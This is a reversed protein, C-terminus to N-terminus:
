DGSSQSLRPHVIVPFTREFEPRNHPKGRVVLKWHVANHASQFSHMAEGPVDLACRREFPQAPGEQAQREILLPACHVREVETRIDTGQSFTAEEECVLLLELSDFPAQGAQSFVVEYHGGPHLPLDSIELSTPGVGAHDFLRRVFYFGAWVGICLMAAALATLLWDGDQRLHSELALVAVVATASNWVLCFAAAAALRWIPSAAVPLRFELVTGPSDTLERGDPVAPFQPADAAGDGILDRGAGRILASRREASAGLQLLSFIFGGGGILVFSALVLLVLWLSWGALRPGATFQATLLAALAVAGLLFLVAFFLAEGLSGAVRSGTRREGRKKVWFRFLRAV